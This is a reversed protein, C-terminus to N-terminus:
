SFRWVKQWFIRGNMSLDGWIITDYEHVQIVPICIERLKRQLNSLTGFRSVGQQADMCCSAEFAKSHVARCLKICLSLVNAM